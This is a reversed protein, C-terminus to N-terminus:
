SKIVIVLDSVIGTSLNIRRSAFDVFFLLPHSVFDWGSRFWICLGIQPIVVLPPGLDCPDNFHWTHPKPPLKTSPHVPRISIKLFFSLSSILDLDPNSPRQPPWHHSRHSPRPLQVEVFNSSSASLTARGILARAM